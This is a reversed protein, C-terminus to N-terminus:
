CAVFVQSFRQRRPSKQRGCGWRVLSAQGREERTLKRWGYKVKMAMGGLQFSYNATRGVRRNADAVALGHRVTAFSLMSEWNEDATDLQDAVSIFRTRADVMDQVFNYQHRPNRYVRSLDEALVIDQDGQEVLAYLENMTQRDVLMGSCQEGLFTFDIDGKYVGELYEKAVAMSSEITLETQEQSAKPKSLRGIIIAKPPGNKDKPVLPLQNSIM